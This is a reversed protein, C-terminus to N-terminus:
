AAGLLSNPRASPMAWCDDDAVLAGIAPDRVPVAGEADGDAVKPDCLRFFLERPSVNDFLSELAEGPLGSVVPAALVPLVVGVAVVVVTWRPSLPCEWRTGGVRRRAGVGARSM